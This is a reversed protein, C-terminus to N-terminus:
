LPGYQRETEEIEEETGVKHHMLVGSHVFYIDELTENSATTILTFLKQLLKERSIYVTTYAGM